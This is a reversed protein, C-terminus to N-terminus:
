KLKFFINPFFNGDINSPFIVNKLSSFDLKWFLSKLFNNGLNRDSRWTTVM